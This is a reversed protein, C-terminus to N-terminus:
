SRAGAQPAPATHILELTVWTSRCRREAVRLGVAGFASRVGDEQRALLGSVILRGNAALRSRLARASQILLDAFLNAAIVDFRGRLAALRSGIEISRVGNARAAAVTARRAAPDVDIAVVREVGLRSMAVALIGSGCGVDLGRRPPTPTCAREIAVLCGRTTAHHGTGFAQGPDIRLVTRGRRTALPLSAPEVWPPCVLLRRGVALPPFHSKWADAAAPLVFAEWRARRPDISPFSERLSHLAARLTAELRRTGRRPPFYAEFRTSGGAARIAGTRRLDRQGTVVGPAGLDICLVGLAEAAPEPLRLSLRTWSRSPRPPSM